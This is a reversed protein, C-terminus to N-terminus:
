DLDLKNIVLRNWNKERRRGLNDNVDSPRRIYGHERLLDSFNKKKKRVPITSPTPTTFILPTKLIKPPPSGFLSNPLSLEQAITM